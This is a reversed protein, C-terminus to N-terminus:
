QTTGYHIHPGTSKTRQEGLSKKVNKIVEENLTDFDTKDNTINFTYQPHNEYVYETTVTKSVLKGNEYKEETVVRAIKQNGSYQISGGTAFTGNKYEYM